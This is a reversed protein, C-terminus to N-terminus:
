NEIKNTDLTFRTKRDIVFHHQIFSLVIRECYFGVAILYCGTVVVGMAAATGYDRRAAHKNADISALMTLVLLLTLVLEVGLSQFGSVEKAPITVGLKGRAHQPSIAMVVGTGTIAILWLYYIFLYIFIHIFVLICFTVMAAKFTLALSLNISQSLFVSFCELVKFIIIM